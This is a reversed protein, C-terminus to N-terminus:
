LSQFSIKKWAQWTNDEKKARFYLDANLTWGCAFQWTGNDIGPVIRLTLVSLLMNSTGSPRNANETGVLTM